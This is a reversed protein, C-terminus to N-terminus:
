PSLVYHLFYKFTNYRNRLSGNLVEYLWHVPPFPGKLIQTLSWNRFPGSRLSKTYLYVLPFHSKLIKYKKHWTGISARFAFRQTRADGLYQLVHTSIYICVCMDMCVHMCLSIRVTADKRCCFITVCVCVCVCVCMWACARAYVCVCVCV